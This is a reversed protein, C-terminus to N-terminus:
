MQIGHETHTRNTRPPSANWSLLHCRKPSVTETVATRSLTELSPLRTCAGISVASRSPRACDCACAAARRTVCSDCGRHAKVDCGTICPPVFTHMRVSHSMRGPFAHHPTLRRPPRNTGNFGYHRFHTCSSAISPAAPAGPVLLGLDRPCDHGSEVLTLFAELLLKGMVLASTLAVARRL